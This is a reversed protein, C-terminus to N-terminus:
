EIKEVADIINAQSNMGVTGVTVKAYFPKSFDGLKMVDAQYLYYIKQTDKDQVSAFFGDKAAPEDKTLMHTGNATIKIYGKPATNINNTSTSPKASVGSVGTEIEVDFSKEFLVKDKKYPDEVYQVVIKKITKPSNTQVFIKDFTKNTAQTFDSDLIARGGSVSVEANNSDYAKVRFLYNNKKIPGNSEATFSVQILTL